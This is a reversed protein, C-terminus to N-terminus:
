PTRSQQEVRNGASDACVKVYSGNVWPVVGNPDSPPAETKPGFFAANFDADPASSGPDIEGQVYGGQGPFFKGQPNPGKYSQGGVVELYGYDNRVVYHGSQGHIETNAVPRLDNIDSGSTHHHSGNYPEDPKGDANADTFHGSRYWSDCRSTEKGAHEKHAQAPVVGFAIAICAGILFRKSM